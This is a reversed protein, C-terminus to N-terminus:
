ARSYLRRRWIESERRHLGRVDVQARMRYLLAKLGFVCRNFYVYM